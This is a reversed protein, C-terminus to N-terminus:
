NLSQLTPRPPRGRAMEFKDYCNGVDMTKFSGEYRWRSWGRLHKTLFQRVTLTGNLLRDVNSRTM